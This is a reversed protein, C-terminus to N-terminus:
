PTDPIDPVVGHIGPLVPSLADDSGVPGPTIRLPFPRRDGPEQVLVKGGPQALVWRIYAGFQIDQNIVVTKTSGSLQMSLKLAQAARRILNVTTRELTSNPGTSM